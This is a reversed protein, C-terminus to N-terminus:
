TAPPVPLDRWPRAAHAFRVAKRIAHSRGGFIDGSAAAATELDSCLEDLMALTEPDVKLAILANDGTRKKKPNM